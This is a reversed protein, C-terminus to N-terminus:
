EETHQQQQQLETTETDCVHGEDTAATTVSRSEASEKARHVGEETIPYVFERLVSTAYSGPPLAFCVQMVSVPAASDAHSENVDEELCSEAVADCSEHDHEHPPQQKLMWREWDTPQVVARWHAATLCRVTVRGPRVCMARYAGHFHLVKVLTSSAQLLASACRGDGNSDLASLEAEYDAWRCGPVDPYCLEVDPGPLPLMVDCLSFLGLDDDHALRRMAPLGVGRERGRMAGADDDTEHITDNEEDHVNKQADPHDLSHRTLDKGTADQDAGVDHSAAAMMQGTGEAEDVATVAAAAAAGARTSRTRRHYVSALVLDGVQPRLVNEGSSSASRAYSLRRALVRNWVLSQVAHVYLMMLTRPLAVFAGQVDHPHSVLHRLMDREHLCFPPTQQLAAAYDHARLALVAARMAPVVEARSNFVAHLAAQWEGRLLAVGVESTLVSTTGFRQPGFYNAAGVQSLGRTIMALEDATPAADGYSLSEDENADVCNDNGNGCCPNEGAVSTNEDHAHATSMPAAEHKATGSRGCLRLAITFHNGVADGLRLGHPQECCGSVRVRRQPGFHYRHVLTQLRSACLGQVAVRQLTVARKDKTGSVLLQRTPLGLVRALARLMSHSDYNEKYLTFHLFSRRRRPNSRRREERREAATATCVYVAGDAATTSVHTGHLCLRLQQHLATRAAKDAPTSVYVRTEGAILADTVRRLCSEELVHHLHAHIRQALLPRTGSNATSTSPSHITDHTDRAAHCTDTKVRKCPSEGSETEDDVADEKDDDTAATRCTAPSLTSEVPTLPCGNSFSVQGTTEHVTRAPAAVSEEDGDRGSAAGLTSSGCMPADPTVGDLHLPEGNQYFPCMERVVFDSYLTKLAVAPKVYHLAVDRTADCRQAEVNALAAAAGTYNDNMDKNSTLAAFSTVHRWVDLM